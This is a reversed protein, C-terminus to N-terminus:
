WSLNTPSLFATAALALPVFSGEPLITPRERAAGSQSEAKGQCYEPDNPFPDPWWRSRVHGPSLYFGRGLDSLCPPGKWPKAPKEARKLHKQMRGSVSKASDGDTKFRRCSFLTTQKHAMRCSCLFLSVVMSFMWVQGGCSGGETRPLYPGLAPLHLWTCGLM